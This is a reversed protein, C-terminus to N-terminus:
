RSSLLWRAEFLADRKRHHEDPEPGNASWQICFSTTSGMGASSSPSSVSCCVYEKWASMTNAMELEARQQTSRRDPIRTQSLMLLNTVPLLPSSKTNVKMGNGSSHARLGSGRNRQPRAGSPYREIHQILESLMLNTEISLWLWSCEILSTIRLVHVRVNGRLFLNLFLQFHSFSEAKHM